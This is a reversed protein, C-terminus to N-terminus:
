YRSGQDIWQEQIDHPLKEVFLNIGTATDLFSLGPLYGDLKAAEIELLLDGLEQLRQYDRNSRKPFNELRIFLYAEIAEPSGYM